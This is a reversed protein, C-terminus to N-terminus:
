VVNVVAQKVSGSWMSRRTEQKTLLQAVRIEIELHKYPHLCVADRHLCWDNDDLTAAQSRRCRKRSVTFQWTPGPWGPEGDPDRKLEMHRSLLIETFCSTM